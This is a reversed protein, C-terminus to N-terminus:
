KWIVRTFTTNGTSEDRIGCFLYGESLMKELESTQEIPGSWTDGVALLKPLAGLKTELVVMRESPKHFIRRVWSAYYTLYLHTITTPVSGINVASVFLYRQPEVGGLRSAMQMNPCATVKLRPGTHFWKFVDWLFVVTALIAGWWAAWDSATFSSFKHLIWDM